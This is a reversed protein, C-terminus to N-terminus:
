RTKHWVLTASPRLRRSRQCATPRRQLCRWRKSPTPPTPVTQSFSGTARRTCRELGSAWMDWEAPYPSGLNSPQSGGVVATVTADGRRHHTDDMDHGRLGAPMKARICHPEVALHAALVRAPVRGARRRNEALLGDHGKRVGGARHRHSHHVAPSFITSRRQRPRLPRQPLQHCRLASRLRVRRGPAVPSREMKRRHPARQCQLRRRPYLTTIKPLSNPCLHTGHRRAQKQDHNQWLTAHQWKSGEPTAVHRRRGNSSQRRRLKLPPM